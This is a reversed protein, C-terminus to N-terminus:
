EAGYPIIHQGCATCVLKRVQLLPHEEDGDDQLLPHEEAQPKPAAPKAAAEKAPGDTKRYNCAGNLCSCAEAKKISKMCELLQMEHTLTSHDFGQTCRALQMASYSSTMPWAAVSFCVHAHHMCTSLMRGSDASATSQM